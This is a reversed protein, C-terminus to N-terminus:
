KCPYNIALLHCAANMVALNLASIVLRQPLHSHTDAMASMATFLCFGAVLLSASLRHFQTKKPWNVLRYSLNITPM